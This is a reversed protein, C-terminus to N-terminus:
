AALYLLWLFAEWPSQDWYQKKEAAPVGDVYRFNFTDKHMIDFGNYKKMLSVGKQDMHNAEVSYLICRGMANCLRIIKMNVM